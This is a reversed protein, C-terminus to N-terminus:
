AFFNQLGKIEIDEEYGCKGCKFHVDKKLEPMTDFFLKIKELDKQSM